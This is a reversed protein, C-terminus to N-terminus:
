TAIEGVRNTKKVISICWTVLAILLSRDVEALPGKSKQSSPYNAKCLNPQQSILDNDSLLIQINSFQDRQTWMKRASSGSTGFSLVVPSVPGGHPDQRLLELELEQIAREATPNKNRNKVRGIELVNRGPRSVSPLQRSGRFM